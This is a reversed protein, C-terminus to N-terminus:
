VIYKGPVNHVQLSYLMPHLQVNHPTEYTVNLLLIFDRNTYLAILKQNSRSELNHNNSSVTNFCNRFWTEIFTFEYTTHELEKQM